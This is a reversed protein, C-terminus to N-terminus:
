SAFCAHIRTSGNKAYAYIDVRENGSCNEGTAKNQSVGRIVAQHTGPKPFTEDATLNQYDDQIQFHRCSVSSEAQMLRVCLRFLAGIEVFIASAAPSRLSSLEAFTNVFVYNASNITQAAGYLMHTASKGRRLKSDDEIYGLMFSSHHFMDIIGKISSSTPQPIDLWWNLADIFVDRIKKAPLPMIYEYPALVIQRTLLDNAPKIVESFVNRTGTHGNIHSNSHANEIGNVGNVCDAASTSVPKIM